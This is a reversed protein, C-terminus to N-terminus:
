LRSSKLSRSASWSMASALSPSVQDNELQSLFGTSLDAEEALERLSLGLELRRRRLEPGVIM